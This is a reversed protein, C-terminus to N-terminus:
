FLRRPFGVLGGRVIHTLVLGHCDSTVSDLFFYFDKWDIVGSAGAYHLSPVMITQSSERAGSARASPLAGRTTSYWALTAVNDM